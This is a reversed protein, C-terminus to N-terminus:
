LACPESQSGLACALSQCSTPTQCCKGPDWLWTLGRGKVKYLDLRKLLAGLDSGIAIQRRGQMPAAGSDKPCGQRSLHQSLAKTWPTRPTMPAM